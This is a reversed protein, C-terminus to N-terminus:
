PVITFDVSKAAVQNSNQDTVKIELRYPGPEPNELDTSVYQFRSRGPTEETHIAHVRPHDNGPNFIKLFFPRKDPEASRITYEISLKSYGSEDPVLGYIEFYVGLPRERAVEHRPSPLIAYLSKDFPGGLTDPIFECALELDSMELKGPFPESIEIPMRWAAEARGQEDRASVGLYYRGEPLDFNFQVVRDRESACWSAGVSRFRGVERWTSDFVVAESRLGESAGLDEVALYLELRGVRDSRSVGSAPDFGKVRRFLGPRLEGHLLETGPRRASFVGRGALSFRGGELGRELAEPLPRPEVDWFMSIPLDYSENLYRDELFVNMGLQPYSWVLRNTTMPRPGLTVPNYQTAMPM